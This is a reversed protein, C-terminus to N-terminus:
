LVRRVVPCSEHSRGIGVESHPPCSLENTAGLLLELTLAARGSLRGKERRWASATMSHQFCRGQVVAAGDRAFLRSVGRRRGDM